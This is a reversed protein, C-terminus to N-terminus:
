AFRERDGFPLAVLWEQASQPHRGALYPSWHEKAHDQFSEDAALCLESHVSQIIFGCSWEGGLRHGGRGQAQVAQAAM